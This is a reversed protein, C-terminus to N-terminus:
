TTMFARKAAWVTVCWQATLLGIGGVIIVGWIMPSTPTFSLRFMGRLNAATFPDRVALWASFACLITLVGTTMGAVWRVKRKFQERPLRQYAWKGGIFWGALTGALLNPVPVGMFMGFLGVSYFVFILLYTFQSLQWLTRQITQFLLLELVVGCGFAGMAVRGILHEELYPLSGWWGALFFSIPIVAGVILTLMMTELMKM